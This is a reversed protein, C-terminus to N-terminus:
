ANKCFSNILSQTELGKELNIFSNKYKQNNNISMIHKIENLFDTSRTKKFYKLKMLNSNLDTIKVFDCTKKYNFILEYKKKLTYICIFKDAPESILDSIYNIIFDDNKWNVNVYNDYFIEKNKKKFFKFNILENSLKFNLIESLCVLFHIGHSHEHISGGGQSLNGLYSSFEDKNWFHANLIGKWGERWSVDIKLIDKKKIKRIIDQYYLFSESVSHNYGVFIKKKNSLLKLKKKDLRSRYTAFPKEVLLKKFTLKDFIKLVLKYHTAPPTGIIILDFKEKLKFVENYNILSIMNDWKSYRFPYIKDKMRLLASFSIDTVSVSLNLKRCANTFHNGISGSGFILVKKM